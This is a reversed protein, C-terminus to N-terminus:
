RRKEPRWLPVVPHDKLVMKDIEIPDGGASFYREVMQSSSSLKWRLFIHTPLEGFLKVLETDLFRRPAHWGTGEELAIGAKACIRHYISSMQFLSLPPFNCEILYPVAEECLLQYRQEGGKATLIYITRGEFDIHERRVRCLEARRLGYISSLCLYPTYGDGLDKAAEVMARIQELTVTPKVTDRSNVRPASRKGLDWTPGPLAMAKLVQALAGPDNPNVSSILKYKDAEYVSKAADFVRKVISYIKRITGPAYGEDKLRELFDNVMRKNWEEFPRDGAFELFKQAYFARDKQTHQSSGSLEARFREMIEAKM